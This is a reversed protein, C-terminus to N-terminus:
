RRRGSPRPTTSCARGDAGRPVRVPPLGHGQRGRGRGRRRGDHGRRRRAARGAAGRRRAPAGPQARRRSAGAPARRPPALSAAARVHRAWELSRHSGASAFGAAPRSHFRVVTRKAQCSECWSRRGRRCGGCGVGDVALEGLHQAVLRGVADGDLDDVPEAVDREVVLVDVVGGVDGGGGRPQALLDGAGVADQGDGGLVVARIGATSLLAMSQSERGYPAPARTPLGNPTTPAVGVGYPPLHACASVTREAPM